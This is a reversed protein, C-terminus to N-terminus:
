GNQAAQGGIGALGPLVFVGHLEVVARHRLIWRPLGCRRDRGVLVAVIRQGHRGAELDLRHRLRHDRSRRHEVPSSAPRIGPPAAAP